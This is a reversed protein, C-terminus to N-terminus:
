KVMNSFKFRTMQYLLKDSYKIQDSSKHFNNIAIELTAQCILYVPCFDCPFKDNSSKIECGKNELIHEIIKKEESTM